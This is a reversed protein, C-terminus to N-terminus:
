FVHTEKDDNIIPAFLGEPCRYFEEAIDFFHDAEEMDGSIFMEVAWDIARAVALDKPANTPNFLDM